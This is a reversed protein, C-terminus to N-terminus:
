FIITRLKLTKLWVWTWTCCPVWTPDGVLVAIDLTHVCSPEPGYNLYYFWDSVSLRRSYQLELSEHHLFADVLSSCSELHGSPSHSLLLAGNRSALWDPTTAQNLPCYCKHLVRLCWPLKGRPGWLKKYKRGVNDTKKREKKEEIRYVKTEM